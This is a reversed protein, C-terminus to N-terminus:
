PRRWVPDGVTGFAPLHYSKRLKRMGAPQVWATGPADRRDSRLSWFRKVPTSVRGIQLASHLAGPMEPEAERCGQTVGKEDEM